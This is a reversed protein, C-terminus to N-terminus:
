RKTHLGVKIEREPQAAIQRQIDLFLQGATTLTGDGHRPPSSYPPLESDDNSLMTSGTFTSAMSTIRSSPISVCSSSQSVADDQENVDDDDDDDNREDVENESM